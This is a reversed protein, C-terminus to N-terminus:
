LNIVLVPIKLEHRVDEITQGFIIDKFGTHGHAGIVLIDANNEKVLRVIEKNRNNFGLLGSAALGKLQLENVYADLRQQDNRTELDDAENGIIRTAASEVIHILIYKSNTNGQGLAHAILKYDNTSFDLAVAITQFVPITLNSIQIAEPHVEITNIVDVGRQTLPYFIAVLLLGIYILGGLVILIKPLISELTNFFLISQELVM